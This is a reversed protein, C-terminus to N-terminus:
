QDSQSMQDRINQKFIKMEEGDNAEEEESHKIEEVEQHELAVEVELLTEPQQQAADDEQQEINYQFDNIATNDEAKTIDEDPQYDNILSQLHNQIQEKHLSASNKSVDPSM